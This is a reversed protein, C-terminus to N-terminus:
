EDAGLELFEDVDRLRYRDFHYVPLRGEYEHILVFTPSNITDPPVMLGEAAARVFRTKGAGLNGSLAVVLGPLAALGLAVGIQQTELENHSIISFSKM